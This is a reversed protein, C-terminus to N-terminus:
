RAAADAALRRKITDLHGGASQVEIFVRRIAPQNRVIDAEIESITTEVEGASLEDRFDLSMALVIDAPGMHMTRLENIREISQHKMVRARIDAVVEPAAAEGLLLGKCEIALVVATLALIVGIAISAAGDIWLVGTMDVLAIGVFAVILGLMAASDEFLITVVTPDKTHRVAAIWSQRGKTQRFEKFAITWAVGEFAMALTLVIYNIYSDEIVEPHQVKHIGEYLSVGAGLGFILIAVVFAYFYIEMGYGFQHKADAPKQSRKMGLLILGQNGTDVLSHVAESLMASSGTIMSAAFKTVAILSNGALAAYVVKKSGHSAM